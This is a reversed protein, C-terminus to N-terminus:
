AVILVRLIYLTSKGTNPNTTQQGPTVKLFEPSKITNKMAVLNIEMAGNVALRAAAKQGPIIQRDKQVSGILQKHYNEVTHGAGPSVETKKLAEADDVGSARMIEKREELTKTLKSASQLTTGEMVALQASSLPQIGGATSVQATSQPAPEQFKSKKGDDRLDAAFTIVSPKAPPNATRKSSTISLSELLEQYKSSTETSKKASSTKLEATAGKQEGQASPPGM